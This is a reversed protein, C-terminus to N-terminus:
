VDSINNFFFLIILKLLLKYPKNHRGRRKCVNRFLALHRLLGLSRIFTHQVHAVWLRKMQKIYQICKFTCKANVTLASCMKM